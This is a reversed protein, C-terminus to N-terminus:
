DMQTVRLVEELSTIGKAAKSLGDERLTKMGDKIAADKINQSSAKSGVLQRIGDTITLTEFIGIRGKYGTNKCADCGRGRMFNMAPELKLEDLVSASINAPEKCKPCIVRVLRQAVIGIVSSSILFPEVGMDTLRALSGASDNTHLTSFVLHGTLAAQIAIEATEKDRIEGVMIVDPDQRLFARLASSFTVEARPNVQVQNIGSLQYEVPDEITIINKSVSNIAHLAAYLTTTKGSGTPGTVLLIGYPSYILQKFYDLAEPSFGLQELGLILTSSDLLRLVIKEGFQTPLVSVRLDLQKDDVKIRFRGDQPKRKEAIDLNAMVKIRSVVASHLHRPPGNVEHLMGDIRFRTRFRDEAPEIHIDSAGEKMAQSILLDVLRILPSESSEDMEETGDVQAQKIAQAVEKAVHTNGYCKEIAETIDLETALVAKVDCKTKLRIEELSFLNMPDSIAVTLSNAIKFVPILCHKRALPEPVLGIVEPKITHNSLEVITMNFKDALIAVLEKEGILGMQSIVKKLSVGTSIAKEQADRLKEPSINGSTLLLETLSKSQNITKM